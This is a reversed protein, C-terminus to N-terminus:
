QITVTQDSEAAEYIAEIVRVDVLGHDGDPGIAEGSLIRDAFYTLIETMQDVQPTSLDVTTEDRTLRLETEMHFAPEVYIEGDTGVIRLSTSSQANQSATSALFTGDDMSLTFATREDPVDAFFEHTSDMQAQATLPDADLLFRATNLPYIGIDTVSVGSGVLDPNLRWQDPDDNIDILSQTNNGLAVVPRGITGDRILERARRIAPETHMRYGVLLPVDDDSAVDVMREAREVSAEMPKECFIAKGLDAATEAYPLHLANPSCIYIADYADSAAGHHFEDYTIGHTIPEFRDVVDNAKDTSGSVAVTIDCLESDLLAPITRDVTWWGLGIVAFRVTGHATTQWDREEFDDLYDAITM